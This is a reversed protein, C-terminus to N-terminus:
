NRLKKLEDISYFKIDSMENKTKDEFTVIPGYLYGEINEKKTRKSQVTLMYGKGKYFTTGGDSLDEDGRIAHIPNKGIIVADFDEKAFKEVNEM